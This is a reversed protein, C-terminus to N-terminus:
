DSWAASPVLFCSVQVLHSVLQPGYWAPSPWHESFYSDCSLMVTRRAKGGSCRRGLHLLCSSLAGPQSDPWLGRVLAAAGLSLTQLFLLWLFALKAECWAVRLHKGTGVRRAAMCPALSLINGLLGCLQASGVSVTIGSLFSPGRLPLGRPTPKWCTLNVLPVTRDMLVPPWAGSPVLTRPGWLSGTLLPVEMFSLSLMM